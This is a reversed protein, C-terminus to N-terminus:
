DIVTPSAFLHYPCQPYVNPYIMNEQQMKRFLIIKRDVESFAIHRDDGGRASHKSAEKRGVNEWM